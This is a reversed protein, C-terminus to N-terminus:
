PSPDQLSAPFFLAPQGGGHTPDGEAVNWVSSQLGSIAPGQSSAAGPGRVHSLDIGPWRPSPARSSMPRPTDAHSATVRACGDCHPEGLLSMRGETLLAGDLFVGHFLFAQYGSGVAVGSGMGAWLSVPALVYCSSRFFGHPTCQM